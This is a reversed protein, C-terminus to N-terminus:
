YFHVNTMRGGDISFYAAAAPDLTFSRVGNSSYRFLDLPGIGTTPSAQGTYPASLALSSGWGGIGLTEDIEHAATSQLSSLDTVNILITGYYGGGVGAVA